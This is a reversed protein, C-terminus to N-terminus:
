YNRIDNVDLLFAAVWSRAVGASSDDNLVALASLLKEALSAHM